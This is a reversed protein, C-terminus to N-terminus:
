TVRRTSGGKTKKKVSSSFLLLFPPEKFGGCGLKQVLWDKKREDFRNELALMRKTIFGITIISGASGHFVSTAALDPMNPKPELSYGPFM